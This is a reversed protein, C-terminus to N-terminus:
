RVTQRLGSPKSADDYHTALLQELDHAVLDRPLLEERMGDVHRLVGHVAMSTMWTGRRTLTSKSSTVVTILLCSLAIITVALAVALAPPGPREAPQHRERRAHLGEPQRSGRAPFQRHVGAAAAGRVVRVPDVAGGRLSLDVEAARSALLPRSRAAM